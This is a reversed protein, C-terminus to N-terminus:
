LIRCTPDKWISFSHDTSIYRMLGEIDVSNGSSNEGVVLAKRQRAYFRGIRRPLLKGTYIRGLCEHPHERIERGIGTEIPGHQAAVSTRPKLSAQALNHCFASRLSLLSEISLMTGSGIERLLARGDLNRGREASVKDYSTQGLPQLVVYFVRGLPHRGPPTIDPEASKDASVSLREDAEVCM